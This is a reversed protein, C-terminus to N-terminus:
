GLDVWQSGDSGQFRSGSSADSVYIVAGEWETPDPRGATEFSALQLPGSMRESGNKPLVRNLRYGYASFEAILQRVLTGSFDLLGALTTPFTQPLIPRENVPQM